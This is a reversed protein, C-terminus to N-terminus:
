APITYTVEGKKNYNTVINEYGDVNRLTAITARLNVVKYRSLASKRTVVQGAELASLVKAKKSLNQIKSM